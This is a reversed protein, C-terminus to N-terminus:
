IIKILKKIKNSIYEIMNQQYNINLISITSDSSIVEISDASVARSDEAVFDLAQNKFLNDKNFYDLKILSFKNEYPILNLNLIKNHNPILSNTNIKRMILNYSSFTSLNIGRRVLISGGEAASPTFHFALNNYFCSAALFNRSNCFILSLFSIYQRDYIDYNIFNLMHLSLFNESLSTFYDIIFIFLGASVVLLVPIIFKCFFCNISSSWIRVKSFQLTLSGSKKTLFIVHIFRLLPSIGAFSFIYRSSLYLNKIFIISLRTLLLPIPPTQTTELLLFNLKFITGLLFLKIM